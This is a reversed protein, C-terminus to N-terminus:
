LIIAIDIPVPIPPVYELVGHGCPHIKDIGTCQTCQTSTSHVRKGTGTHKGIKMNYKKTKKKHGYQMGTGTAHYQM